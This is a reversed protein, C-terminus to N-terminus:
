LARHIVTVRGASEIDIELAQIDGHLQQTTKRIAALEHMRADLDGSAGHLERYSEIASEIRKNLRAIEEALFDSQVSLVEAQKKAEDNEHVGAAVVALRLDLRRQELRDLQKFLRRYRFRRLNMSGLQEALAQVVDTKEQIQYYNLRYRKRLSGLTAVKELRESNVIETMFTQVVADLLPSLEDAADEEAGVMSIHILESDDPCDVRLSNLVWSTPEERRKLVELQSNQPDRVATTVVHSSKLLNALTKKYISYSRWSEGDRAVSRQRVRLVSTVEAAPAAQAMLSVLMFTTTARLWRSPDFVLCTM